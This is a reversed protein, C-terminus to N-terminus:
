MIKAVGRRVQEMDLSDITKLQETAKRKMDDTHSAFTERLEQRVAHYVVSCKTLDFLILVGM